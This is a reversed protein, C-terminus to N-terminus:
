LLSAEKQTFPSIEWSSRFDRHEAWEEMTLMKHRLYTLEKHYRKFTSTQEIDQWLLHVYPLIMRKDGQYYAHQIDVHQLPRRRLSHYHNAIVAALSLVGAAIQPSILWSPLTRYEFGGHPQLRFDGLFGYRPRRHRTTEGELLVLPLALYNDLSRLLHSNLAVGSFHIHGGLPLGKVPMGGALWELHPDNIIVAARQMASRLHATLV